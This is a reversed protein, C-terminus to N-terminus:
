ELAETGQSCLVPGTEGKIWVWSCHALEQRLVDPQVWSSLQLAVRFHLRSSPWSPGLFYDIFEKTPLATISFTAYNAGKGRNESFTYCSCETCAPAQQTSMWIKLCLVARFQYKLHYSFSLKWWLSSTATLYVSIQICVFLLLLLRLHKLCVEICCKHRCLM